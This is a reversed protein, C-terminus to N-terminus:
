TPVFGGDRVGPVQWRAGSVQKRGWGLIGEHIGFLDRAHELLDRRHQLKGALIRELDAGVLVARPRNESEGPVELCGDRAALEQLCRPDPGAEKGVDLGEEPRPREGEVILEAGTKRRAESLAQPDRSEARALDLLKVVGEADVRERSQLRRAPFSPDRAGRPRASSISSNRREVPRAEETSIAPLRRRFFGITRSMLMTAADRSGPRRASANRLTGPTAAPSAGPGPTNGPLRLSPGPPGGFERAFVETRKGSPSAASRRTTESSSNGAARREKVPEGSCLLCIRARAFSSPM